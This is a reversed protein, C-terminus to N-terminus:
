RNLIEYEETLCKGSKDKIITSKGQKETILNGGQDDFNLDRDINIPNEITKM